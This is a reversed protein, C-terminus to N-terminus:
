CLLGGVITAGLLFGLLLLLVGELDEEAPEGPVGGSTGKGRGRLGRSSRVSWKLCYPVTISDLTTILEWFLFGLPNPKTVRLPTLFPNSMKSSSWM